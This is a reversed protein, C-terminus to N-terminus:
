NLLHFPGASKIFHCFYFLTHIVKITKGTFPIKRGYLEEGIVWDKVANRVVDLEPNVLRFATVNTGGYKFDELEVMHLDLNSIIYNHYATMIGVQQAQKLVVQILETRCDLLIRTNGSKKIDKLLPRYDDDKTPILQRVIIRMDPDNPSLKLVDQLKILAENDEYLILFEKWQFADILDMFAQSLSEPHPYLNLSYDKKMKDTDWRAEIHPIELHDCISRIHGAATASPPGFVAAVGM